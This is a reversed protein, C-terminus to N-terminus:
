SNQYWSSMRCRYTYENHLSETLCISAQLSPFYQKGNLKAKASTEMILLLSGMELYHLCLKRWWQPTKEKVTDSQFLRFTGSQGSQKKYCCYTICIISQRMTHLRWIFELFHYENNQQIYLHAIIIYSLAFWIVFIFGIRQIFNQSHALAVIIIKELMSHEVYTNPLHLCSM